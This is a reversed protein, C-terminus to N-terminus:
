FATLTCCQFQLVEQTIRKTRSLGCAAVAVHSFCCNRAVLRLPCNAIHPVSLGGERHGAETSVCCLMVEIDIQRRFMLM